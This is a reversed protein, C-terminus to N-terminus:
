LPVSKADGTSGGGCLLRTAPEDAPNPPGALPPDVEATFHADQDCSSERSSHERPFDGHGNESNALALCGAQMVEALIESISQGKQAALQEVGAALETAIEYEQHQRRRNISKSM